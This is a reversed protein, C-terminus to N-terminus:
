ISYTYCKTTISRGGNPPTLKTLVISHWSCAPQCLVPCRCFGYILAGLWIVQRLFVNEARILRWCHCQLLIHNAYVVVHIYLLYPNKHLVHVETMPQSCDCTTGIPTEDQTNFAARVRGDKPPVNHFSPSHKSNTQGDTAHRSRVRSRLPRPFRFNASYFGM